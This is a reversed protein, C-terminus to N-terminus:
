RIKKDEEKEFNHCNEGENIVDHFFKRAEVIRAYIQCMQRKNCIDCRFPETFEKYSETEGGM